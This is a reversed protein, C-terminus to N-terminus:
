KATFPLTKRVAKHAAMGMNKRNQANAILLIFPCRAVKKVKTSVMSTATMTNLIGITVVSEAVANPAALPMSGSQQSQNKATKRYLRIILDPLKSIILDDM